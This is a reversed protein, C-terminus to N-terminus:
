LQRQPKPLLGAWDERRTDGLRLGHRGHGDEVPGQRGHAEQSRPRDDRELIARADEERRHDQDLLEGEQLEQQDGSRCGGHRDPLARDRPLAHLRHRRPAREFEVVEGQSTIALAATYAFKKDPDTDVGPYITGAIKMAKRMTDDYWDAGSRGNHLGDKLEQALVNSLYDDTDDDHTNENVTSVGLDKKLIAGARANLHKVLAGKRVSNPKVEDAEEIIANSTLAYGKTGSASGWRNNIDGWIDAANRVPSRDIYAEYVERASDRQERDTGDEKTTGIFEGRGLQVKIKNQQGHRTAGKKIADSASGDLDVVYVRAGGPVPDITHNEVGDELLGKHIDALDGKASFSALVSKGEDDPKFVLVAKQDALHAKMVGALVTEDWTAGGYRTMVSNEAGDAWAGVISTDKARAIGIQKHIDASAALLKAQQRGDLAKVAGKFDMDSKVNPSVFTAAEGPRRLARIARAESEASRGSSAGAVFQGGGEGGPDRPHKLEDFPVLRDGVARAGEEAEANENAPEFEDEDEPVMEEALIVEEIAAELGPYTGDEILQNVRGKVLAEFPVLGSNVDVIAADAKQKAITAKEFESMQWLSNWEYFINEDFVGLSSQVISRDLQELAPTLRLQQDSAIHDYYNQLDSEGTANLGAPSRGLFRTAPIDAAGAAIQLYMQLIEPMGAFNVGIREWEEEADLLVANIISKAVNAESFRKIMRSTGASTSFIETLGPIKIVDFKAESIMAAISGAVTGAAAVADHIVGLMPDGWGNNDLANPSALGILRVMRSPHIRVSLKNNTDDNILYYEPQGYYPSSIDKVMEEIHLQHPSLVHLFRLGDLGITSTDLESAMDGEVGILMCAGGYLRAKVLAEQLKLQLCLRAETAELKEIQDQEAQWSRWERTSDEAPIVIAKRAIWDSQFAAELQPRSWIPKAYQFGTMKDRGPMGLGSLFNHFTDFVYGM